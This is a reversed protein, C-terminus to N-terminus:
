KEELSKKFDIVEYKLWALETALGNTLKGLVDSYRTKVLLGQANEIKTLVGDLKKIDVGLGEEEDESVGVFYTSITSSVLSMVLPSTSSMILFLASPIKSIMLYTSSSPVPSVVMMMLNSSASFAFFKTSAISAELLLSKSMLTMPKRGSFGREREGAQLGGGKKRKKEAKILRLLYRWINSLM